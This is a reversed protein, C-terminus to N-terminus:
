HSESEVAHASAENLTVM